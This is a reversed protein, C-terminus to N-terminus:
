NQYRGVQAAGEGSCGTPGYRLFRQVRSAGDVEGTYLNGDTDVAGAHPWHFNGAQRGGTGFRAV